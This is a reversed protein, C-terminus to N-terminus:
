QLREHIVELYLRARASMEARGFSMILMASRAM